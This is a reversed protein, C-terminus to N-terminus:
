GSGALQGLAIGFKMFYDFTAPLSASQLRPPCRKATEVLLAAFARLARSRAALNAIAYNAVAEAMIDGRNESQEMSAVFGDFVRKLLVDDSAQQAFVEKAIMALQEFEEPNIQSGLDPV